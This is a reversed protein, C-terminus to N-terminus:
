GHYPRRRGSILPKGVRDSQILPLEDSACDLFSRWKTHIDGYHIYKLDGHESLDSRANNATSLFQFIQGFQRIEWAGGFGPLRTEGTLLRQMAGQKLERRKAILADLAAILADVDSLAAIARQEPLPPLAILCGRVLNTNLNNQSGTQGMSRFSAELERLKYYLFMKDIGRLKTLGVFGDHICADITTIVPVGVTACISMILSNAPLYRSQAIGQQSLYDQTHTLYKGDSDAIDSIRIWGVAGEPDYWHPSDIPRPSAGRQIHALNGLAPVEWDEPIMGVETHKYGAKLRLAM